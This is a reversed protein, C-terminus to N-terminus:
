SEGGWPIVGEAQLQSVLRKMALAPSEGGGSLRRVCSSDPSYKETEAFVTGGSEWMSIKGEWLLNEVM